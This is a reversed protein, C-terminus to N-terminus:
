KTISSRSVITIARYAGWDQTLEVRIVHIDPVLRDKMKFRQPWGILKQSFIADFSTSNEEVIAGLSSVSDYIRM